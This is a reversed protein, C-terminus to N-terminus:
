YRYKTHKSVNRHGKFHRMFKLERVARKLLIDKNFINSVKKIAIRSYEADPHSKRTDIASCVTGYSGKGLVKELEYRSDISFYCGNECFTTYNAKFSPNLSDALDHSQNLLRVSTAMDFIRLNVPYLTKSDLIVVLSHSRM